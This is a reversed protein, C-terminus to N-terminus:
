CILVAIAAAFLGTQWCEVTEVTDEVTESGSLIGSVEAQVASRMEDTTFRLHKHRPDLFSAVYAAKGASRVDTPALQEKLSASM